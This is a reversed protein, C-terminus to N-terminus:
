TYQFEYEFTVSNGISNEEEVSKSLAIEKNEIAEHYRYM